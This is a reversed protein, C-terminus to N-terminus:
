CHILERGSESLRQLACLGLVTLKAVTTQTDGNGDKPAHTETVLLTQWPHNFFAFGQGQDLSGVVAAEVRPVSGIDVGIASGLLDDAFSDLLVVNGTFFDDDDCFAVKGHAFRWTVEEWAVVWQLLSDSLRSAEM